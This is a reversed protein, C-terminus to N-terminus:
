ASKRKVGFLGMLASGFLWVAAPVPVPSAGVSVSDVNEFTIAWRSSLGGFDNEGSGFSFAGELIEFYAENHGSQALALLYFGADLSEDILADWIGNFSDIMFHEGTDPDAVGYYLVLVPDFGGDIYSTTFINVKREETLTFNFLQFDDDDPLEGSFSISSANAAFSSLLAVMLFLHRMEIESNFIGAAIVTQRLGVDAEKEFTLSRFM